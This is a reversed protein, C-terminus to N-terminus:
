FCSAALFGTLTASLLNVHDNSLIDLGSIPKVNEGPHNVVKGTSQDLGSFQVTSGLLSDLLSGVVGSVAGILIVAPSVQTALYWVIGQFIGGCCSALLGGTTVGGNTGPPVVRGTVLLKPQQRCLVGLESAWTDGACCAFFAHVFVQMQLSLRPPNPNFDIGFWYAHLAAVVVASLSNCFVQIATRRGGKRFESEIMQKRESGLKTIRSSSLFFAMMALAFQNGSLIVVTGVLIAAAAGSTSLSRNRLSSAALILCITLAVLTRWAVEVPSM